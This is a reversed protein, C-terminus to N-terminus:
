TRIVRVRPWTEAIRKERLRKEFIAETVRRPNRRLRMGLLDALGCPAVIMLSGDAELRAAVSTATEPWTAVGDASSLLPEVAFGFKGEYWLHVAAQNKAQWPIDPRVACLAATALRDRDASLDDPDFFAVDVDRLPTHRGHLHDWVLTRIVGGGTLPDPLDTAQVAVLMDMFWGTERLIRALRTADPDRAARGPDSPSSEM